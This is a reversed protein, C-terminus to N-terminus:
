NTNIQNKLTELENLVNINFAYKFVFGYYRKCTKDYLSVISNYGLGVDISYVVYGNNLLCNLWSLEHSVQKSLTYYRQKLKLTVVDVDANIRQRKKNAINVNNPIRM